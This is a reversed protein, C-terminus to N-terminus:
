MRPRCQHSASSGDAGEDKEVQQLQATSPLANGARHEPPLGKLIQLDIHWELPKTGRWQEQELEQGDQQQQRRQGLRYELRVGPTGAAHNEQDILARGHTGDFTAAGIAARAPAEIFRALCGLVNDTTL